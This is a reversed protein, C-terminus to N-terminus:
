NCTSKFDSSQQTLAPHFRGQPVPNIALFDPLYAAKDQKVTFGVKLYQTLQLHIFINLSSKFFRHHFRSQIVPNIALVKASIPGAYGLVGM